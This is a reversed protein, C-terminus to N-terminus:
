KNIILRMSAEFQKQTSLSDFKIARKEYLEILTNRFQKNYIGKQNHRALVIATRQQFAKWQSIISNDFAFRHRGFDLVVPNQPSKYNKVIRSLDFVRKSNKASGLLAEMISAERREAYEATDKINEIYIGIKRGGKRPKLKYIGQSDPIFKLAALIDSADGINNGIMILRLVNKTDRTMNEIQNALAEIIDFTKRECSERNMEDFIINYEGTYENDYFASGKDNYFTSIDHVECLKHLYKIEKVKEGARKGKTIEREVEEVVWVDPRKVKIKMNFKRLLDPDILKDANNRLMADVSEPTLRLWYFKCQELLKLKRGILWKVVSYSKGCDRDGNIIFIKAWDHGFARNCNYWGGYTGM